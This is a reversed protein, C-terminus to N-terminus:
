RQVELDQLDNDEGFGVSITTEDQYTGEGVTTTKDFTKKVPPGALPSVGELMLEKGYMLSWGTQWVNNADNSRGLYPCELFFSDTPGGPDITLSVDPSQTKGQRLNLDIDGTASLTSGAKDTHPTCGPIGETHYDAYTLAGKITLKVMASQAASLAQQGYAAIIEPPTPATAIAYTAKLYKSYLDYVWSAGQGGVRGKSEFSVAIKACSDNISQLIQNAMDQRDIM